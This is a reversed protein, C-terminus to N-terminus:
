SESPGGRSSATGPRQVVSSPSELCDCLANLGEVLTQPDTKGVCRLFRDFWDPSRGLRSLGRAVAWRDGIAEYLRLSELLDLRAEARRGSMEKLLALQGLAFARESKSLTM